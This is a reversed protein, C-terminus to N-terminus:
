AGPGEGDPLDLSPLSAVIAQSQVSLNIVSLLLDLIYRSKGREEAWANPDDTIGSAKDASIQYEEMIWEIASRGNVVYDYAALPIHRVRIDSNFVIGSRDWAGRSGEFRMKEVRFNGKELGTVEVDPLPPIKEYNIHLDALRRGARSFDLFTDVREAIPIHPLEKKLDNSFRTRYEPSHLAGYVYYFIDERSIPANGFRSRVTRLIWDTIGDHREYAADGGLLQGQINGRKKYYYLPFCQGNSMLQVDPIKDTM